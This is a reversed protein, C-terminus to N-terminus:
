MPAPADPRTRADLMDLHHVAACLQDHEALLAVVTTPVPRTVTREISALARQREHDTGTM